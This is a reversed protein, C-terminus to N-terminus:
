QSLLLKIREVLIDRYVVMAEKQDLLLYFHDDSLEDSKPSLVFDLLKEIKEGLEFSERLVKAYVTQTKENM